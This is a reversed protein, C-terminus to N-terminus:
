KREGEYYVWRKSGWLNLATLVMVVLFILWAWASAYGMKFYQFANNFLYLVPVMTSDVPGGVGNTMVYIDTFRQIWAITGMILNFLIYPTLMPLTVHRFRHWSNAGDLDAAEYLHQPVGQLGALWLIIGGGAGWLSMLILAPKSWQESALWSPAPVGFWGTLTARWAQNVVGSEPNLIFLWLVAMAVVPTLSPLYFLTRYVPMGKVKSNLLMALGLSVLISLPIGVGALYFINLFSKGLIEDQFMGAYNQGGVWRPPHLVDYDCLSFVISTIMPGLFLALFGVIWPLAFLYGARAESRLLPAVRENRRCYVVFAALLALVVAACIGLTLPVNLFPQRERNYVADLEAQVIRGHAALAAAPTAKGRTAEDFARIHEDWLRQGVFTVPRFRAYPMMELGVQTGKRLRISAPDSGQPAFERFLVKNIERNAHMEPIYPRPPDQSENWQKQAQNFIRRGELSNMWKIFLWAEEVHRSGLPIAFSFGGSWTIFRPQGKFRGEGRFREAPVPAPAVGFDLDKGFRALNRIANNTDIKMAMKGTIFPDLERPQFSSAFQLVNEAGSMRKYFNALWQLAEKSEPNLLTCTRGDASMFEGGNQWSYLYFWSNSFGPVVPIFGIQEFTRDPRWKTLKETYIVLEDWTQPPRESDLGAKRYLDKNWYLLRDDTSDPIAYVKGKYVAEAWCAPYYERPDIHWPDDRANVKPDALLDDLPLFTERSAWDGITFRDQRVLDPPVDGAISTLLKQANMSGAGMSLNRIRIHPYRQEFAQIQADLGKTEEGSALGWVVLETQATPRASWASRFGFALLVLVALAAGLRPLWEQTRNAM